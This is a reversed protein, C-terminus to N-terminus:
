CTATTYSLKAEENGKRPLLADPDTTLSHTQSSHKEGHFNVTPNGHDDPPSNEGDKRQIAWAGVLTCVSLSM